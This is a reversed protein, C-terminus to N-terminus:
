YNQLFSVKFADFAARLDNYEDEADALDQRQMSLKRDDDLQQVLELLNRSQIDELHERIKDLFEDSSKM